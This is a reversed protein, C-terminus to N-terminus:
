AAGDEDIILTVGEERFGSRDLGWIHLSGTPVGFRAVAYNHLISKLDDESFRVTHRTPQPTPKHTTHTVM